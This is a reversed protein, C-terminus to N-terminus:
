EEDYLNEWNVGGTKPAESRQDRLVRQQVWSDSKAIVLYHNKYKRGSEEIYEDLKEILKQATEDGFKAILKEFESDTLLVHMFSGHKHKKDKKPEPESEECECADITDIANNTNISDKGIRVKGLRVQPLRQTSLQNDSPQGDTSWQESAGCLSMTYANNEDSHLLAKEDKYKTEIYRDKRIYNHIRWHKIVVIGSEFPIIFKKAALIKLDDESAGIMRMIKKPSNIFGDDDARMALDYYLLRATPSMDLFADSDIITKAFMRREAM